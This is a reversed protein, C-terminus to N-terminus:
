QNNVQTSGTQWFIVGVFIQHTEALQKRKNELQEARITEHLDAPVSLYGIVNGTQNNVFEYYIKDEAM